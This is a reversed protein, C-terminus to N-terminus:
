IQPFIKEVTKTSKANENTSPPCINQSGRDSSTCDRYFTRVRSRKFFHNSCLKRESLLKNLSYTNEYVQKNKKMSNPAGFM